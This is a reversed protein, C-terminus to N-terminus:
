FTISQMFSIIKQIQPDTLNYYILKYGFKGAGYGQQNLTFVAYKHDKTFGHFFLRANQEGPPMDFLHLKSLVENNAKEQIKLLPQLNLIDVNVSMPRKDIPLNDSYITNEPNIYESHAEVTDIDFILIAKTIKPNTLRHSFTNTIDLNILISNGIEAFTVGHGTSYHGFVQVLNPIDLPLRELERIGTVIPGIDSMKQFNICVSPNNLGPIVKSLFKQCDFPASIILIFLLESSPKQIPHNFQDTIITIQTKIIKNFNNIHQILDEPTNNGGLQVCKQYSINNADTLLEKFQPNSLHQLLNNFDYKIFNGTMGGHSFTFLKEKHDFYLIGSGKNYFKILLGRLSNIEELNPTVELPPSQPQLMLRFIYLTIFAKHELQLTRSTKGFLEYPITHLLNGASMTGISNDPGFIDNFRGLFTKNSHSKNWCRGSGVNPSWFTYWSSMNDIVFNKSIMKLKIHLLDQRTLTSNNFKNILGDHGDHGNLTTLPFVKLKNLDRNGFVYHIDSNIVCKILNSINHSYLSLFTSQPLYTNTNQHTSTSDILDGTIILQGIYPPEGAKTAAKIIDCGEVDSIVRIEKNQRVIFNSSM